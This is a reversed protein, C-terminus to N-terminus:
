SVSMAVKIVNDERKTYMEFADQMRDWKWNHSKLKGPDIWGRDRLAVIERIEKVPQNTAAVVTARITLNKSMWEGHSFSVSRPTVLSFSIVMGEKNVMKICTELGEPAGTADVVIDVGHGKTIEKIAEAANERSPNITDTAGLELSKKLRYDHLDLGIVQAAGQKEAIMTFSLGIGGQGLVAIRKGAPNGWQKASYLVTGTHQCMVWEDLSGWDPLAIIRDPSQVTYEVAGAGQRPIVIVRQGAKFDPTRSEVITGACEHIPKGPAIPFDEEPLDKDFELRIDSGCVSIWDVKILAEGDQPKPQPIDVFEWRKPASIRAAKM